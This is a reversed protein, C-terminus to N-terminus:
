KAESKIRAHKEEEKEILLHKTKYSSDNLIVQKGTGKKYNVIIPAQLNATTKEFPDHITLVALVMVDSSSQIEIAERTNVNLTFEYNSFFLYPNTVILAVQENHISQLVHYINEENLPLVVFEKENEFAPLGQVFHIVQNSDISTEGFYKTNIKM